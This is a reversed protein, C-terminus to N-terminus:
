TFNRTLNLTTDTTKMDAKYQEVMDYANYYGKKMMYNFIKEHTAIADKLQGRLIIRVEPSTTETIAVAYNQVGSKASILFDTAIVQDSMEKISVLSELLGEM